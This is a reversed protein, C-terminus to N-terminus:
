EEEGPDTSHVPQGSPVTLRGGDRGRKIKEGAGKGERARECGKPVASAAVVRSSAPQMAQKQATPLYQPVPDSRAHSVHGPPFYVDVMPIFFQSSHGAPVNLSSPLVEQVGHTAPLNLV